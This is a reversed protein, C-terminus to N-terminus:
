RETYNITYITTSNQLELKKQLYWKVNFLMNTKSFVLFDAGTRRIMQLIRSYQKIKLLLYGKLDM